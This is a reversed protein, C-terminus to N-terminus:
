QWNRMLRRENYYKASTQLKNVAEGGHDETGKAKQYLRFIGVIRGDHDFRSGRRDPSGRRTTAVLFKFGGDHAAIIPDVKGSGSFATILESKKDVYGNVVTTPYGRDRIKVERGVSGYKLAEQMAPSEMAAVNAAVVPDAILGEGAAALEQGFYHSIVFGADQSTRDSAQGAEAVLLRGAYRERLTLAPGKGTAGQEIRVAINGLLASTPTNAALGLAEAPGPIPLLDHATVM